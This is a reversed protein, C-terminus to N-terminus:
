TGEEPLKFHEALVARLDQEDGRGGFIVIEADVGMDKGDVHVPSGARMRRVNEESLGLLLVLRGDPTTFGARIM